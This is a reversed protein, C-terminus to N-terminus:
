RTKIFIIVLAELIAAACAVAVLMRARHYKSTTEALWQRLADQGSSNAAALDMARSLKSEAAQAAQRWKAVRERLSAM